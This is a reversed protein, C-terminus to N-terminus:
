KLETTPGIGAFVFVNSYYKYLATYWFETEGSGPLLKKGIQETSTWFKEAFNKHSWKKM